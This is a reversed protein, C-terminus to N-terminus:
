SSLTIIKRVLHENSAYHCKESALFAYVVLQPFVPNNLRSYQVAAGPLEVPCVATIQTEGLEPRVL